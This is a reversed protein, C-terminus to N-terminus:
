NRGGFWGVAVVIRITKCINVNTGASDKGTEKKIKTRREAGRRSPSKLLIPLNSKRCQGLVQDEIQYLPHKSDPNPRNTVGM